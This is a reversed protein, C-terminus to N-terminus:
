FRGWHAFAEPAKRGANPSKPRARRAARDVHGITVVTWVRRGAPIGLAQRIVEPGDGKLTAINGGLGHARAALLLREVLRGNDFAELDQRDAAGPTIVVLAVPATAAPRAGLDGMKQRIAPDRVVVVEAPQANSASASWRGVELIDALVDEPIPQPRYERVARLGRLFKTVEQPQQSM